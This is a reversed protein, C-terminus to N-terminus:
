DTSQPTPTDLRVARIFSRIEDPGKIKEAFEPERLQLQYGLNLLNGNEIVDKLDTYEPAPPGFPVAMGIVAKFLEPHYVITTWVITAGWDHGGLIVQEGPVVKEILEALDSALNKRHYPIVEAPASTRAYGLMDPAIVRYGLNSLFPIQNHWGYSLDPFGHVLFITGKYSVSQSPASELYHYTHNAGIPILNSTYDFGLDPDQTYPIALVSSIASAMVAVSLRM